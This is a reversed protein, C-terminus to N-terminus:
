KVLPEGYRIHGCTTCEEVKTYYVPQREVYVHEGGNLDCDPITNHMVDISTSYKFNKGHKEGYESEIFKPLESM